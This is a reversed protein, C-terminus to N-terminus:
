RNKRHSGREGQRRWNCRLLQDLARVPFREYWGALAIRQALSSWFRRKLLDNQRTRRGLPIGIHLGRSLRARARGTRRMRQAGKLRCRCRRARSAWLIRNLLAVAQRFNGLRLKPICLAIRLERACIAELASLPHPYGPSGARPKGYSQVDADRQSSASALVVQEFSSKPAGKRLAYSQSTQVLSNWDPCQILQQAAVPSSLALAAAIALVSLRARGSFYTAQGRLLCPGHLNKYAKRWVERHFSSRDGECEEPGIFISGAKPKAFSPTRMLCIHKMAYPM